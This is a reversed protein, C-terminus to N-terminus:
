KEHVYRENLFVSLFVSFNTELMTLTRLLIYIYNYLVPVIFYM